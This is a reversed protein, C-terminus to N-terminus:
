VALELRALSACHSGKQFVFCFYVIKLINIQTHMYTHLCSCEPTCTSTLPCGEPTPEGRGVKNFFTERKQRHATYEPSAGSIEPLGGTETEWRAAPTNPKCIHMVVDVKYM